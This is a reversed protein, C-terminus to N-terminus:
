ANTGLVSLEREVDEDVQAVPVEAAVNGLRTLRHRALNLERRAVVDGPATLEFIELAGLRPELDHHRHGDQDDEQQEVEIEAAHRLREDDHERHGEGQDAAEPQHPPEAEVKRNGDSNAEDREGADGGLGAHHHQDIEVIREFLSLRSADGFSAAKRVVIQIARDHFPRDLAHTGLHHRDGGDHSPQRGIRHLWPVPASTICRMATGIIPPM